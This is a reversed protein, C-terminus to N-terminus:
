QKLNEVSRRQQRAERAEPVSPRLLGLLMAIANVLMFLLLIALWPNVKGKGAAKDPLPIAMIMGCHPSCEIQIGGNAASFPVDCLNGARSGCDLKGCSVRGVAGDSVGV